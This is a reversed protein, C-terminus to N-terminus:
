LQDQHDVQHTKSRGQFSLTILKTHIFVIVSVLAGPMGPAGGDRGESSASGLRAGRGVGSPMSSSGIPASESATYM